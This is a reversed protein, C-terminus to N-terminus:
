TNSAREARTPRPSKVAGMSSSNVLTKVLSEELSLKRAPLHAQHRHDPVRHDQPARRPPPARSGTRDQRVSTSARITLAHLLQLRPDPRGRAGPVPRLPFPLTGPHLELVTADSRGSREAVCSAPGISIVNREAEVRYRLAGRSVGGEFRDRVVPEPQDVREEQDDIRVLFLRVDPKMASATARRAAARPHPSTGAGHEM